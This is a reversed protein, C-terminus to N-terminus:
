KDEYLMAYRQPYKNKFDELLKKRHARWQSESAGLKRHESDYVLFTWIAKADAPKLNCGPKRMMRKVYRKWIGPAIKVIHSDAFLAPTTNKLEQINKKQSKESGGLEVFEANLVRAPTHCRACRNLLLQYGKRIPSPYSSVDINAPGLDNAYPAAAEKDKTPTEEAVIVSALILLSTVLGFWIVDNTFTSKNTPAQLRM